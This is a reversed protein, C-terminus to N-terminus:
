KRARLVIRKFYFNCIEREIARNRSRPKLGSNSNWKEERNVQSKRTAHSMGRVYMQREAMCHCFKVIGTMTRNLSRFCSIDCITNTCSDRCPLSLGRCLSSLCVMLKIGKIKKRISETYRLCNIGVLQFLIAFSM